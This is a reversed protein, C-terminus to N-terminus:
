EVFGEIGRLSGDSTLNMSEDSTKAIIYQGSVGSSENSIKDAIGATVTYQYKVSKGSKTTGTLTMSGDELGNVFSGSIIEKTLGDKGVKDLYYNTTTIGQGNPVDDVWEGEYIFSGKASSDGYEARIWIGKGNRMDDQFDGYYFFENCYAAVGKGSRNGSEDKEGYYISADERIIEDSLSVFEDTRLMEKVEDIDGTEFCTYLRSLLDNHADEIAQEEAAEALRRAEEEELRSRENEINDIKIKMNEDLTNEYGTNLAIIMNTEDGREEFINAVGWYASKNQLDYTLAMQYADIAEDTNGYTNGLMVYAHSIADKIEKNEPDYDLALNYESIASAYDGSNMYENGFSIRDALKNADSTYSVGYYVGVLVGAALAVVVIFIMIASAINKKM